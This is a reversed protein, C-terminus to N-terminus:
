SNPPPSIAAVTYHNFDWAYTCVNWYGQTRVDPEDFFAVKTKFFTQGQELADAATSATPLSVFFQIIWNSQLYSFQESTLVWFNDSPMYIRKQGKSFVTNTITALPPCDLSPKSQAYIHNTFLLILAGILIRSFMYMKIELAFITLQQQNFDVNLLFM